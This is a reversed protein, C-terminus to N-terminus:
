IRTQERGAGRKGCNDNTKKKNKKKITRGKDVAVGSGLQGSILKQDTGQNQRRVDMSVPGVIDDVTQVAAHGGEPVPSGVTGVHEAPDGGGAVIMEVPLKWNGSEGEREALQGIGFVCEGVEGLAADVVPVTRRVVAGVHDPCLVGPGHAGAGGADNM